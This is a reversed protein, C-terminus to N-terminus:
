WLEATKRKPRGRPRVPPPPLQPVPEPTPPGALLEELSDEEVLIKGLERNVRLKGQAILKYVLKASIAGNLRIVVQRVSLYTKVV